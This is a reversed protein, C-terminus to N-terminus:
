RRFRMEYMHSSVKRLVERMEPYPSDCVDTFGVNFNEGDFRGTLPQDSFQHWHTGVVQPHVLADSVYCEYARARDRQNDVPVVSPNFLGTDSVSGFHFEGVVIPKDVGSPLKLGDLRFRYVNYSVADAYEACIRVIKETHDAFRCGFYLLGPDFRSIEERIVRFYERVTDDDIGTWNHENDVFIGVCMPSTLEARRAELQQRLYRRFEPHYPDPVPWWWAAVKQERCKPGRTELREIWPTRNMMRIARDSSNAITNLGWSRLRRHCTDAYAGRWNAGYKRFLNAASFDYTRKWGWKDYYPKLLEDHTHYFAGLPDNGDDKPLDAFYHGRGDLPTVASSPSVRVVGHSWWLRGAPDVFWWKGDVKELRFRGTAKLLPGTAWGGYEDWEANGPHAALDAKEVEVAAKLDDDSGVKRPWDRFRFQGYRDVFPFFDASTMGHWTPWRRTSTDKAVIRRVIMEPVEGHAATSARFRGGHTLTVSPIRTPDFPKDRDGAMFPHTRMLKMEAVVEPHAIRPCVDISVVGKFGAPIMQMRCRSDCTRGTGTLDVSLRVDDTQSLNELEVCITGHDALNWPGGFSLPEGKWRKPEGEYVVIDTSGSPILADKEGDRATRVAAMFMNSGLERMAPVSNVGGCRSYGFECCTALYANPLTRM